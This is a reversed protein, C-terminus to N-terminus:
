SKFVASKLQLNLGFHQKKNDRLQLLQQCLDQLAQLAVARAGTVRLEQLLEAGHEAHTELVPVFLEPM